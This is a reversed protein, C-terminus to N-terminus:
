FASSTAYIPEWADAIAPARLHDSARLVDLIDRQTRSRYMFSEGALAGRLEELDPDGPVGSRPLLLLALSTLVRERPTSAERHAQELRDREAPGRLRALALAADGRISTEPDHLGETVLDLLAVDGRVGAARYVFCKESATGAVLERALDQFSAEDAADQVCMILAGQRTSTLPGDVDLARLREVAHAGGIVGASFMATRRVADVEAPDSSRELLAPVARRLGIGGLAYSGIDRLDAEASHLWQSIFRDGHHAQSRSLIELLNPYTISKWGRTGVTAIASELYGFMDGTRDLFAARARPTLTVIRALAEVCYGSYKDYLYSNGDATDNLLDSIAFVHDEAGLYGLAEIAKRVVDIEGCGLLGAVEDEVAARHPPSFCNPVLNAAHWDRGALKLRKVMLPGSTDPFRGLLDRLVYTTPSSPAWLRDVVAETAEGGREAIQRAAPWSEVPDGSFLADLLRGLPVPAAISPETHESKPPVAPATAAADPTALELPAPASPAARAATRAMAARINKALLTRERAVRPNSPGLLRLDRWDFYQRDLVSRLVAAAPDDDPASLFDECDIYYVPLVLEERRLVQEKEVFTGYEVRCYASNLFSPTVMPLLFTSEALGEELRRRWREGVEIDEASQFISVNKGMQAQLETLLRERFKTIRRDGDDSVAYSMFAVPASEDSKRNATM